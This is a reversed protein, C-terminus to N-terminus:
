FCVLHLPVGGGGTLGSRPTSEQLGPICRTAQTSLQVEGLGDTGFGKMTELAPYKQNAAHPSSKEGHCLVAPRGTLSLAPANKLQITPRIGLIRLSIILFWHAKFDDSIPQGTAKDGPLFTTTPQGWWSKSIPPSAGPQCGSPSTKGCVLGCSGSFHTSEAGPPKVAM